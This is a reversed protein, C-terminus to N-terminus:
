YEVLNKSEEIFRIGLDKAESITLLGSHLAHKINMESGDTFYVMIYHSKIVNFCYVTNSDEYVKEIATAFDIDLGKSTDVIKYATVVDPDPIPSPTCDGDGPKDVPQNPNIPAQPLENLSVSDNFSSSPEKVADKTDLHVNSKDDPTVAICGSLVFILCLTLILSILRKM